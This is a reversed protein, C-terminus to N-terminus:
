WRRVRYFRQSDNATPDLLVLDTGTGATLPLLAWNADSLNDINELTYVRGSESPVVRSFGSGSKSLHAVLTGPILPGSGLL